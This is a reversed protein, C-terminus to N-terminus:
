FSIIKSNDAGFYVQIGLSCNLNFLYYGSKYTVSNTIVQGDISIFKNVFVALGVGLNFIRGDVNQQDNYGPRDQGATSWIKGAGIHAFPKVDRDGLYFRLYPAMAVDTSFITESDYNQRNKIVSFELGLAFRRSIFGGVSPSLKFSSTTLTKSSVETTNNEFSIGGGILWKGKNSQAYAPSLIIFIMIAFFVKKM